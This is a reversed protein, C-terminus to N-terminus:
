HNIPEIAPVNVCEDCKQLVKDLSAPHVAGAGGGSAAQASVFFFSSMILGIIIRASQM